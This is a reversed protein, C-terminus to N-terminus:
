THIGCLLLFVLNGVFYAVLHELWIGALAPHCCSLPTNTGAEAVRSLLSPTGNARDWQGPFGVAQSSLATGPGLASGCNLSLMKEQSHSSGLTLQETTDEKVVWSSYGALSGTWPLRWALISSHTAMGKELPDKLGLSRVQTEQM